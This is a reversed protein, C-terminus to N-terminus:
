PKLAEPNGPPHSLQPGGIECERPGLCGLEHSRVIQCGVVDFKEPLARLSPRRPETQGLQGQLVVCVSMGEDDAERALFARDALVEHGLDDHAVWRLRQVEQKPRADGFADVALQGVGQGSRGPALLRQPVELADVAEHSLRARAAPPEPVV